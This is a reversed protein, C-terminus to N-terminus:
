PPVKGLFRFAVKGYIWGGKKETIAEKSNPSYGPLRLLRM